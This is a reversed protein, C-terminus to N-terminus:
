FSPPRQSLYKGKIQKHFYAGASKAKQIGKVNKESVKFFKYTKGTKFKVNLQQTKNDFSITDINSSDIKVEKPKVYKEFHQKGGLAFIIEPEDVIRDQFWDDEEADPDIDLEYVNFIYEGSDPALPAETILLITDEDTSTDLDGDLDETLSTIQDVDYVQDDLRGIFDDDEDAPWDRDRIDFIVWICTQDEDFKSLIYDDDIDTSEADEDLISTIQDVDYVQDIPLFQWDDDEDSPTDGLDEDLVIILDSPAVVIADVLRDLYWDDEEDPDVTQDDLIVVVHDFDTVLDQDQRAYTFDDDADPEVYDIQDDLVVVIHDTDFVLDDQRYIFHDDEDDDVTQEDLISYVLDVDVTPDRLWDDDDDPLPDEDESLVIIFDQAVDEIRTIYDDDEDLFEGPDEDIALIVDYPQLPADETLRTLWDDDEDDPEGRVLQWFVLVATHDFLPNDIWEDDFQDVDEEIWYALFNLHEVTLHPNHGGSGGGLGLTAV